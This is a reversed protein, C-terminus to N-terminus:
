RRCQPTHCQAAPRAAHQASIRRGKCPYSSSRVMATFDCQLFQAICLLPLAPVLCSSQHQAWPVTALFALDM